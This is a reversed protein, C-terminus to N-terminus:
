NGRGGSGSSSKSGVLSAPDVLKTGLPPLSSKNNIIAHQQIRTHVSRSGPRGRGQEASQARKVQKVELTGPTDMSYFHTLQERQRALEGEDFNVHMDLSKDRSKSRSSRERGGERVILQRVASELMADFSVSPEDNARVVKKGVTASM